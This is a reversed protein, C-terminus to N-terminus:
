VFPDLQANRAGRVATFTVRAVGVLVLLCLGFALLRADAPTTLRSEATTLAAAAVVLASAGTVLAGRVRASLEPVLSRLELVAAGLVAAKACYLAAGLPLAAGAQADFPSQFGGFLVIVLLSTMLLVTARSGVQRVRGARGFDDVNGDPVGLSLVAVAFLAFSALGRFAAFEWPLAGQVASAETVRAAGTVVGAAAIALAGPLLATVASAARRLADLAGGTATVAHLAFSAGLAALVISLLEPEANMAFRLTLPVAIVLPIVAYPVLAWAGQTRRSGRAGSRAFRRVLWAIVRPLPAFIWLTVAAVLLATLVLPVLAPPPRYGDIALPFRLETPDGGRRVGLTVNRASPAPVVESKSRVLVGDVAMLVDGALLGARHGPSGDVVTEVVLGQRADSASAVVVGAADLFREGEQLMRREISAERPPPRLDLVVSPLTASAPPAGPVAAAFAVTVDGRFTTHEAKGEPGCLLAQLRDDYVVEIARESVVHGDARAEFGTRPEAGARFLTGQLTVRAVHGRPFGNGAIEIREGREVDRPAVESVTLLSLPAERDCGGLVLLALAFAVLCFPLGLRSLARSTAM